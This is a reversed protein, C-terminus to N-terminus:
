ATDESRETVFQLRAGTEELEGVLEALKRPDRALRDMAYALLIDAGGDGLARRIRDMGPRSLSLGSAVDRVSEVVVWEQARAFDLCAREQTNLPNGGLDQADTAVRAYTIARM